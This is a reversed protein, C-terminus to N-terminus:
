PQYSEQPHQLLKPLYEWHTLVVASLLAITFVILAGSLQMPTHSASDPYGLVSHYIFVIM